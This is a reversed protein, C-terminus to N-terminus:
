PCLRERTWSGHDSSGSPRSFVIRDHLRSARGQWFEVRTPALRYGGWFSPVPVPQDDDSAGWRETLAKERAALAEASEIPSSQRSAWAGIRSARPRSHFYAATEEPSVKVVAGEARVQREM